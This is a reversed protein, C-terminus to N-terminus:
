AVLEAHPLFERRFQEPPVDAERQFMAIFASATSFGLDMAISQVSEGQELLDVAKLYRLRQRWDGLSMGLERMCHRALTRETLHVRAAWDAVSLRLGPDLKLTDLIMQVAPTLADPLYSGRVQSDRLQDVLVQGLRLDSESQPTNVGRDTFDALISRVIPSIKLLCAQQPLVDCREPQVYLSRYVMAHQLYCSHAVGPPVWIGFQPPSVFRADATDLRITGHACYNLHGLRHSHADAWTGAGFEDYRVYFPASVDDVNVPNLTVHIPKTSPSTRAM